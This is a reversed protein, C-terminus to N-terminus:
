VDVEALAARRESVCQAFFGGLDSLLTWCGPHTYTAGMSELCHQELEPTTLSPWGQWLARIEDAELWGGPETSTAAHWCRWWGPGEGKRRNDGDNPDICRLLRALEPAVEHAAQLLVDFGAFNRATITPDLQRARRHWTLDFLAAGRADAENRAWASQFSHVWPYGAERQLTDILKDPDATSFLEHLETIQDPVLGLLAFTRLETRRAGEDPNVRESDWRTM